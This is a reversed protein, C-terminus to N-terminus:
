VRYIAALQFKCRPRCLNLDRQDKTAFL